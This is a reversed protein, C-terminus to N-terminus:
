FRIHHNARLDNKKHQQSESESNKQGATKRTLELIRQELEEYATKHGNFRVLPKGAPELFVLSNKVIVCM